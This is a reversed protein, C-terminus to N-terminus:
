DAEYVEIEDWDGPEIFGSAQLGGNHPLSCPMIDAFCPRSGTGFINKQTIRGANYHQVPKGQRNEQQLKKSEGAKELGAYLKAKIATECV